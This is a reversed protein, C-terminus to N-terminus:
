GNAIGGTGKELIVAWKCLYRLIDDATYLADKEYVVIRDDRSQISDVDLPIVFGDDREPEVFQTASVPLVLRIIIVLSLLFKKVAVYEENQKEGLSIVFIMSNGSHRYNIVSYGTQFPCYYLFAM